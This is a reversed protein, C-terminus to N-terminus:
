DNLRVGFSLLGEIFYRLMDLGSFLEYMDKIYDGFIIIIWYFELIFEM